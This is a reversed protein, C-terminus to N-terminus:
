IKLPSETHDTSKNLVRKVPNVKTSQLTTTRNRDNKNQSSKDTIVPYM